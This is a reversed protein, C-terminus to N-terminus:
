TKWVNRIIEKITLEIQKRDVPEGHIIGNTQIEDVISHFTESSSIAFINFIKSQVFEKLFFEDIHLNKPKGYSNTLILEYIIHLLLKTVNSENNTM